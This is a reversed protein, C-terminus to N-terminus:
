KTTGIKRLTKFGLKPRKIELYYRRSRCYKTCYLADKRGATFPMDCIVCPKDLRPIVRECTRRQALRNNAAKKSCALSCFKPKLTNRIANTGCLQCTVAVRHETRQKPEKGHIRLHERQSMCELNEIRNDARDKNKHHVQWGYPIPGNISAWVIRHQYVMRGGTKAVMYGNSARSYTIAEM